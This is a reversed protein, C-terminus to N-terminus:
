AVGATAEQLHYEPNDFVLDRRTPPGTKGPTHIILSLCLFVVEVICDQQESFAGVSCLM